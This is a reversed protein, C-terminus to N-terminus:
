IAFLLACLAFLLSVRSFLGILFATMPKVSLVRSKASLKAASACCGFFTGCIPYRTGLSSGEMGPRWNLCEPLPQSVETINLPFVDQNLIAVRLSLLVTDWAKHGFEHM